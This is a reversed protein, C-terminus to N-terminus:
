MRDMKGLKEMAADAMLRQNAAVVYKTVMSSGKHGNVAMLERESAGAEALRRCMAKRLSHLNRDDPLGAERIAAKLRHTIGSRTFGKGGRAEILFEGKPPHAALDAALDALIPIQLTIGTKQQRVTIRGEKIDATKMVALDSARQGTGLGIDLLRREITGLPWRERFRTIDEETWTAYVGVKLPEVRDTPNTNIDGRQIAYNLLIKLCRYFQNAKAPTAKLGDMMRMVFKTDLDAVKGTGLKEMFAAFAYDYPDRSHKALNQYRGTQRFDRILANITGADTAPLPKLSPSPKPLRFWRKMTHPKSSQHDRNAKFTDLFVM